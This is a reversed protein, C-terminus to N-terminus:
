IVEGDPQIDVGFQALEVPGTFNFKYRHWPSSRTFDFRDSAMTVTEVSSLSDGLQERAYVNLTASTPKTLFRPAVRRVLSQQTDDGIDQTTLTSSTSAGTVTYLDHSTNFLAPVQQGLGLFALNYTATPFDDYTPYVTGLEAYTIGPAIWQVTAEVERDDRGWKGTLYHYVVCKEPTNAAQVPYFFYVRKKKFDHLATSAWAYETNLNAFVEDNVPEGIPIVQGARFAYFNDLGMFIHQPADPKGVDVIVEQCLAGAEGPILEWHWVAGGEAGGVYTGLYMSARKYAVVQYGFRKAGVIKGPTSRLRGTAAETNISPAWDTYGGKAACWWGDYVATDTGYFLGGQDVVNFALVFNNATEITAAKPATATVQAFETADDIFQIIENVGSALTVDGFQAFRWRDEGTIATLTASRPTWTASGAEYIHDTTAAFLRATDNTKKLAAAGYCQAALSPQVTILPTPAGEYGKQSPVLASCAPIAGERTTDFDPEYGNLLFTRMM